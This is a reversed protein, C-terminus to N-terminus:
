KRRGHKKGGKGAREAELKAMGAGVSKGEVYAALKNKRDVEARNAVLFDNLLAQIKYHHDLLVGMGTWRASWVNEAEALYKARTDIMGDLKRELENVAALLNKELAAQSQLLKDQGDIIDAVAKAYGPAEKNFTEASANWKKNFDVSVTQLWDLKATLAGYQEKNIRM